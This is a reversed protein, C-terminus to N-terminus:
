PSTLAQLATQAATLPDSQQKLVEVTAQKLPSGLIVLVDLSPYLNTSRAIKDLVPILAADEWSNLSSSRPPLFGALQTWEALFSSDTLFKALEVSLEQREPQDTAVALVWGTGLTYAGGGPTPLQAITTAASPERLHRSSWTSALDTREEEFAKWVQEDSEYQTLWYPMLGAQEADRFFTLVEALLEPDLYPRGQEDRIEGGNAMYQTLTFLALSDSAPFLLPVNFNVASIWDTPPEPLVEPRHVLVLADGALPLGYVNDQVHVLQQAFDYWDPDDMAEALGDIPYLLGKLTATELANHPLVILDPIALPAAVSATGLTDLLGGPGETEKIRVDVRVGPRRESFENLRSQLLQGAPAESSPDFTPPLWIRLNISGPPTSTGQQVDSLSETPISTQAQSGSEPTTSTGGPPVLGECGVLVLLLLILGLELQKPITVIRRYRKQNLMTCLLSM